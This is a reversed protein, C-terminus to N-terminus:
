QASEGGIVVRTGRWHREIAAFLRSREIPKAAYDDCGAATCRQRDGAMAHATLAIIPLRYGQSRLQQTAAYGDLVPMQMDMLVVDFPDGAHAAQAVAECALAGNEVITVVAGARELFARLLRRNDPGDEAVLVRCGDLRVPGTRAAPKLRAHPEASPVNAVVTARFHSGQGPATHILQVDGGLMRALRRSILLGLGTGGFRRTTSSDAQAFPQFLRQAEATSMGIGTDLVNFQLCPPETENQYSARLTVRGGHPTFKVANSLLNLLIQRVRTPDGVTRAPLEDEYAITLDVHAATARMRVLEEVEQVVEHPDFAVTEVVLRGSEIRSFDLIDNVIQLLFEANRRVTQIHERAEAEGSGGLPGDALLELFGIISTLPTRVEHSMNALFASKAAAATTADRTALRLQDNAEALQQHRNALEQQQRELEANQLRLLHTQAHLQDEAQQRQTVDACFGEIARLTGTADFVGRGREWCVREFGGQTRLHYTVEYARQSALAATVEAEVRKADAPSLLAAFPQRGSVLDEPGYGTLESCGESAFLTVQRTADACRFAMGPLNSLLTAMARQGERLADESHGMRSLMGNLARGLTAIEDYGRVHVRASLGRDRGIQEVTGSLRQVRRVVLQELLLGFMAGSLINVVILLLDLDRATQMAQQHVPRPLRADVEGIPVGHVDCLPARVALEDDSHNDFTALNLALPEGRSVKGRLTTEGHIALTVNALREIRRVMDDDVRRAFVLTGRAPGGGDSTLIPRAAVLAFGDVLRVLGGAHSGIGGHVLLPSGPQCEAVVGRTLTGVSREGRREVCRLARGDLDLFLVLDVDITDLANAGLNSAIYEPNQDAVFAYTDDWMAWDAAARDYDAVTDNIAAAVCALDGRAAHDELRDFGAFMVRESTLHLVCHTSAFVLVCVLVLKTRLRM